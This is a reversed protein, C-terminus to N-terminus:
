LVCGGPGLDNAGDAIMTQAAAGLTISDPQPTQLLPTTFEFVQMGIGLPEM